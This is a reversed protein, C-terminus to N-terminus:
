KDSFDNIEFVSIELNVNEFNRESVFKIEFVTTEFKIKFQNIEVM